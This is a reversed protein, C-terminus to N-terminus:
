CYQVSISVTCCVTGEDREDRKRWQDCIASKKVSSDCVIRVITSSELHMTPTTPRPVRLAQARVFTSGGQNHHHALTSSRSM